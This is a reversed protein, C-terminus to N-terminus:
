DLERNRDDIKNILYVIACARSTLKEDDSGKLWQMTLDYYRRNLMKNGLLKMASNFYLYDAPIM